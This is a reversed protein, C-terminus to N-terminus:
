RRPSNMRVVQAEPEKRCLRAAALLSLFGIFAFLTIPLADDCVGGLVGLRSTLGVSAIAINM